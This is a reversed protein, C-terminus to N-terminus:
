VDEVQPEAGLSEFFPILHKEFCDPCIDYHYIEGMFGDGPYSHGSHYEIITKSVDFASATWDDDHYQHPKVTKGCIDCTKKALRDVKRVVEEEVYERM